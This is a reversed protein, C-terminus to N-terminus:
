ASGRRNAVNVGGQGDTTIPGNPTIADQAADAVETITSVPGYTGEVTHNARTIEWAVPAMPLLDIESDTSPAVAFAPEVSFVKTTGNYGYVLRPAQGSGTGARIYAVLHKYYDNTSSAGPNPGTITSVTGATATFTYAVPAGSVDGAPTVVQTSGAFSLTDNRQLTIDFSGVTDCEGATPQYYYLGYGVEGATGAAASNTGCTKSVLIDSAPTITLGPLSAGVAGGYTTRTVVPNSFGTPTITMLPISTSALAGTFTVTYTHSGGAKTVTTTGAGYGTLGEIATDIAASFDASHSISGTTAQAINLFAAISITFSDGAGFSADTLTIVQVENAAYSRQLRIPMRRKVSTSESQNIYALM